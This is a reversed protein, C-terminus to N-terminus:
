RLVPAFLRQVGTEWPLLPEPISRCLRLYARFSATGARQRWPTSPVCAHKKRGLPQLREGARGLVEQQKGAAVALASLLPAKKRGDEEERGKSNRGARQLDGGQQVM